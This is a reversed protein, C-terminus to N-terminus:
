GEGLKNLQESNGIKMGPRCEQDSLSQTLTLAQVQVSFM